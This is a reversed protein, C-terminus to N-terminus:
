LEYLHQNDFEAQLRVAEDKQSVRVTRGRTPRQRKKTISKRRRKKPITPRTMLGFKVILVKMRMWYLHM